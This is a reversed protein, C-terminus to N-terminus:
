KFLPSLDDAEDKDNRIEVFRPLFLSRNSFKDTIVVNYQVSIIKSILSEPNVSLTELDSDTFGSGVKVNLTGSKDKCIFGGLKGERKGEGPYWGSIELDCENVEKIKIWSKSRKCEYPSDKKVIVGEGGDAVIKKYIENIETIEDIRHMTALKVHHLDDKLNIVEELTQRRISYPLVGTGLTLTDADELDFVHFIFDKDIDHKATGRLIQNVKGSVSKRDFDTLEGDFFWDGKLESLEYLAILEKAIRSLFKTDLENFSRTFFSIQGNKVLGIVRVGDYKEECYVDGWKSIESDDDTALMLSPDPIVQRKLAKNIIKAGIGINMRKTLIKMLSLRLDYDEDGDCIRSNIIKEARSRLTDNAAPAKKLDELLNKVERADIKEDSPSQSIHLKHLKTTIFPNYCINLFYDFDDDYNEFIKQQKLNVSGEGTLNELEIFLRLIKEM